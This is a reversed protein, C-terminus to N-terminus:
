GRQGARGTRSQGVGDGEGPLDLALRQDELPDLGLQAADDDALVVEEVAHQDAQEGAAVHQDLAHRPEGLGQRDLRQRPRQRDVGRRMWNM